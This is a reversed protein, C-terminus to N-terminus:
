DEPASAWAIASQARAFADSLEVALRRARVLEEAAAGVAVDPRGDYSGGHVVVRGAASEDTLFEALQQTFQPLLATAARLNGLVGYAAAPYGIGRRARGPMTAYNLFRTAEHILAAVAETNDPDHPGDPNLNVNM